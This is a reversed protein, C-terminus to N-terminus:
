ASDLPSRGERADEAVADHWGAVAACLDDHAENLAAVVTRDYAGGPEDAIEEATDYALAADVIPRMREVLADLRDARQRQEACERAIRNREAREQDLMDSMARFTAGPLLPSRYGPPLPVVKERDAQQAKHRDISEQLKARLDTESM